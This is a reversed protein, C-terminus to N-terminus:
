SHRCCFLFRRGRVRSAKWGSGERTFKSSRKPLRCGSDAAPPGGRMNKAFRGSNKLFLPRIRSASASVTTRFTWRCAVGEAAFGPAVLGADFQSLPPATRRKGQADLQVIQGVRLIAPDNRLLLVRRAGQQQPPIEAVVEAAGAGAGAGSAAAAGVGAAASTM